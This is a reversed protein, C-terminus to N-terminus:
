PGTRAANAGARALHARLLTVIDQQHTFPSMHGADAIEELEARPLAKMLIDTIASAARPSRAGRVFTVPCDIASYDGPSHDLDFVGQFEHAVKAVTRIVESRFRESSMRWQESGLWYGMYADAATENDGAAAAEICQRAVGAIDQWEQAHTEGKLLPFAVPEVLFLSAIAGSGREAHVRAAELGLLGGYSHGALHVPAGAAEILALVVDLDSDAITQPTEPWPTSMGYGLLDPALMRYQGTLEEELFLWAKHSASSCHVLVVPAGAGRDFYHAQMQKLQLLNM